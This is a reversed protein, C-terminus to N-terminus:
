LSVFVTVRDDRNRGKRQRALFEDMKRRGEAGSTQSDSEGFPTRNESCNSFGGDRIMRKKEASCLV